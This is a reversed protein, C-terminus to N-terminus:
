SVKMTKKTQALAEQSIEMSKPRPRKNTSALETELDGMPDQPSALGM